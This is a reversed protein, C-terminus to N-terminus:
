SRVVDRRRCVGRCSGRCIEVLYTIRCRQDANSLRVKRLFRFQCERKMSGVFHTVGFDFSGGPSEDFDSADDEDLATNMVSLQGSDDLDNIM